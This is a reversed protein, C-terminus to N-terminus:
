RAAAQTNDTQPATESVTGQAATQKRPEYSLILRYAKGLPRQQESAPGATIRVGSLGCGTKSGRTAQM